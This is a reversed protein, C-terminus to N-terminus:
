SEPPRQRSRKRDSRVVPRAGLNRDYEGGEIIYDNFIRHFVLGDYFGADVYDVFNQTTIPANAPDLEVVIPGRDTDFYIRPAIDQAVASVSLGLGCAAALISSLAKM